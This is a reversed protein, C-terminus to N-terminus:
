VRRGRRISRRTTLKQHRDEPSNWRGKWQKTSDSQTHEPANNPTLNSSVNDKDILSSSLFIRETIPPLGAAPLFGNYLNKTLRDFVINIGESGQHNRLKEFPIRNNIDGEQRLEQHQHDVLFTTGAISLKELKPGTHGTLLNM